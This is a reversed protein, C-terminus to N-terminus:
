HATCHTGEHYTNCIRGLTVGFRTEDHKKENGTRRKTPHNTRSKRIKARNRNSHNNSSSLQQQQNLSDKRIATPVEAEERVKSDMDGVSNNNIAEKVKLSSNTAELEMERKSLLTNTIAM